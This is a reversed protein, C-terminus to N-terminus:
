LVEFLYAHTSDKDGSQKRYEKVTRKVTFGEISLQDGAGFLRRMLGGIVRATAGVDKVGGTGPIEVAHSQCAEALGTATLAVDLRGTIELATAVARLWTREPSSVRSQADQHGDMLPAQRLLNQVIWDLIQCWEHFDHRNEDTRLKGQRHWERVLTFVAGLVLAQKKTVMAPIDSFVRGPQKLIRCISSRKALDPTSEMENSTLQIIHRRPDILAEKCGPIRAAVLGPATMVSELYQSVLRGRINDWCIFPQGSMLGAAFSEDTSGVGGNRQQVLYARENYIRATINHSFGKGAQPQDAEMVDFPTSGAILNGLKLAPTIRAALARSKDAPTQFALEDVTWLLWKKAMEMSMKKPEEGELILLGGLERHYGKSLVVLEGEHETIVPCRLVNAM